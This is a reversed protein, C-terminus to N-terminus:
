KIKSAAPVVCLVPIDAVNSLVVTSNQTSAWIVTM